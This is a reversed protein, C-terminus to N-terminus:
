RVAFRALGHNDGAIVWGECAGFTGIIRGVSRRRHTGGTGTVFRLLQPLYGTCSDLLLGGKGRESSHKRVIDEDICSVGPFGLCAM